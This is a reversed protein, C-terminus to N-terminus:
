FCVTLFNAAMECGARKEYLCGGVCVCAYLFCVDQQLSNLRVHSVNLFFFSLFPRM